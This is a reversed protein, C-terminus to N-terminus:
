QAAIARRLKAILRIEHDLREHISAWSETDLYGFRSALELETDLEAASGQAVRLSQVFYPPSERGHGEAINAAISVAARRCQGTLGFREDRPFVRTIRYVQEAVEMAKQWARLDRLTHGAATSQEM